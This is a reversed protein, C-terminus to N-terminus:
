NLTDRMVLKEQHYCYGVRYYFCGVQQQHKKITAQKVPSLSEFYPAMKQDSLHDESRSVLLMIRGTQESRPFWYRYMLGTGGFLHDATTHLIGENDDDPDAQHNKAEHDKIKNRYFAVQSATFYKDVGVVLPEEQVEDEIEEEVAEVLAGIEEWAVPLRMKPNYGIGPLGLVLYHMVGGMIMLTVLLTPQWLKYLSKFLVPSNYSHTKLGTMSGSLLPLMALWLPGTWNLKTEHQLSFYSFVSLPVLTFIATFLQLEGSSTSQDSHSKRSSWATFVGLLGIPTLLLAINGLLIHASFETAATLRQPGQFIFSAWQHQANWILVPSFIAIALIAALYPEIWRYQKRARPILLMALLAAPGLLAITYKSLLGLGLFIGVGYWAHRKDRLLAQQLFYLSGAWCATLPADPTMLFGTLFFFPLVAALLIARMATSKDFLDIALKYVFVLTVFWCGLSGLRVGLETDGVLWTGMAILWAVMPPHDLYGIDLHKAYNWYYAEEPILDIVGMYILKIALVYAVGGIVAIRWRLWNNNQLTDQPFLLFCYVGLLVINSTIMAPVIALMESWHGHEILNGLLGGRIFLALLSLITFSVLQGMGTTATCVKNAPLTWRVHLIYSSVAAAFFSLIHSADLRMGAYRLSWFLLLDLFMSLLSVVFFRKLVLPSVSGGSLAMLRELYKFVTSAKLKSEGYERQAFVIPVETVRLEAEGRALVELGIKYGAAEKGLDVLRQRKVAFFGSMPDRADAIPWALLTAGRSLIQRYWPWGTTSGGRTYRSGIAVDHTGNCIPLVLDIIKEPPHSLDADIVVVVDGQGYQAGDTVATALDRQNERALLHVPHTAQWAKVKERTGDTSGDDVVIIEFAIRDQLHTCIQTILSDINGEENLTPVVVSVAPLCESTKM